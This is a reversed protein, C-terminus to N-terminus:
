RGVLTHFFDRYRQMAKRLDETNAQGGASWQSELRAREEKFMTSLQDIVEAVLRDAQEVTRRPDDVFGAQIQDWQGAFYGLKEEQMLNSGSLRGMPETKTTAAREDVAQMTGEDVPASTRERERAPGAASAQAEYQGSQEAQPERIEGERENM